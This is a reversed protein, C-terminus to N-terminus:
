GEAEKDALERAERMEEFLRKEEEGLGNFGDMEVEWDSIDSEEDTDAELQPVPGALRSASILTTALKVPTAILSSSARASAASPKSVKNAPPPPPTAAASSTSTSGAETPPPLTPREVITLNALLDDLKSQPQPPHTPAPPAVKPPPRRSPRQTESPLTTALPAASAPPASVPQSPTTAAPPYDAGTPHESPSSTTRSTGGNASGGSGDSTRSTALSAQGKDPGGGKTKIAQIEELLEVRWKDGRLGAGERMQEEVYGSRVKCARSCFGEEENGEKEKIERRKASISWRPKSTYPAAPGNSCLPYSCLSNLHREHLTEVYQHHELYKAGRKFEDSGVTGECLRDMWREGKRRWQVKKDMALRLAVADSHSPPELGGADNRTAINLLAPQRLSRIPTRRSPGAEASASTSM